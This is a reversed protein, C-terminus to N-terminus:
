HGLGYAKRYQDVELKHNKSEELYKETIQQKNIQLKSLSVLVPM